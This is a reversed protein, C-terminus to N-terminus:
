KLSSYPMRQQLQIQAGSCLGPTHLMAVNQMIKYSRNMLTELSMDPQENLTEEPVVVTTTELTMEGGNGRLIETELTLEGGRGGTKEAGVTEGQSTNMVETTEM